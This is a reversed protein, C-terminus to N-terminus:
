GWVKVKMASTLTHYKSLSPFTTHESTQYFAGVDNRSAPVQCLFISYLSVQKKFAAKEPQTVSEINEFTSYPFATNYKERFVIKALHMIDSIASRFPFLTINSAKQPIFYKMFSRECLRCIKVLEAKVLVMCVLTQSHAKEELTDSFIVNVRIYYM